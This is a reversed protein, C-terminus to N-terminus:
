QTAPEHFQMRYLVAYHGDRELLERHTGTEVVVGRHLVVLRDAREVTSLRHAIVLTTRNRLLEELGAQIAREAHSDLSATAEDLILIPANKLLARAIAIRQRQGGSLLVGNEGVPTDLGDPLRQIFEMANATEAAAQIERAAVPGRRGYAINNAITDNFLTVQQGVLAIQERLDALRYSRLDVGDLLIEGADPDYFRPLLNVLTTKGSGSRGVIALMEGPAVQVSVGSLVAGKQAAYTFTVDRYALAGRARAIPRAGPDAEPAIDLLEFLSLGAAIGRQLIGNISTLRKLPPLLLMMATIFSVFTGVTIRELMHPLTALYIIAALAVAAVLQSLPTSVANTVVLKMNARRNAENVRDFRRAEYEQAGFIKVERQGEIAEEAVHSVDEMSDQIRTSVRRLRRTLLRVMVAVVPGVLLMILSLHVNLYFMWGLLALITLSDRILITVVTTTTQAVQEVHYTFKALLPGSSVQDYFRAPLQLLHHFLDGRLDTVVRRGVWSMGYTSLFGAVMRLTFLGILLPPIMRIVAPDRRVFSGDLMPKMIAAFGADTSGYVAMGFAAILFLKWHPKAYRLLRRYVAAGTPPGASVPTASM